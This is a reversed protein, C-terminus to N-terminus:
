KNRDRYTPNPQNAYGVLGSHLNNAVNKHGNEQCVISDMSGQKSCSQNSSFRSLLTPLRIIQYTVTPTM